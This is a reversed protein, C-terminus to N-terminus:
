SGASLAYVPEIKKVHDVPPRLVLGPVVLTSSNVGLAFLATRLESGLAGSPRGELRASSGEDGDVDSWQLAEEAGMREGDLSLILDEDEANVTLPSSLCEVSRM